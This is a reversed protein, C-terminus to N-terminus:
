RRPLLIYVSWARDPQRPGRRKSRVEARILAREPLGRGMRRAIQATPLRLTASVFSGDPPTSMASNSVGETRSLPTSGGVPCSVVHGESPMEYLERSPRVGEHPLHPAPNM